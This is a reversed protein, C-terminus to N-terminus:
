LSQQFAATVNVILRSKPLNAAQEADVWQYGEPLVFTPLFVPGWFSVSLKRHSLIHTVPPSLTEIPANVGLMGLTTYISKEVFELSVPNESEIGFPEWLGAWIGNEPRKRWLQKGQHEILIFAMYVHKSKLKASKVPFNQWNGAKKAYCWLALPCESCQPQRPTCVTAGLEMIAQNFDGPRDEPIVDTVISEFLTLTSPKSIDDQLALLRSVVRFVNGDVAPVKEGFAISAVAGSTYRGVGPLKLWGKKNEPFNGMAALLKAAKHLNRARSYYGLGEWFKLVEEERAEALDKVEPFREIFRQYYPLGQDVRTQQLMIESLWIQYPSKSGRWPLTRKNQDYWNLLAQTWNM